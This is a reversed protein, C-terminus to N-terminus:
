RPLGAIAFPLFTANVHAIGDSVTRRVKKRPTATNKGKAM